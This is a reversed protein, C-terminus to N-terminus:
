RRDAHGDLEAEIWAAIADWDDARLHAAPAHGMLPRLRRDAIFHIRRSPPHQEAASQLNHPIDDVFFVPLETRAALARIAPGKLGTNPIVPYPMGHRALNAARAAAALAPVNTLIVVDAVRSLRQLADAAGPVPDLGAHAAAYFEKLLATVTDHAVADGARTRVNGHLAYSRLDLWMERDNLFRELGAVFQLLVEDADSVLLPRSRWEPLAAIAALTAEHEAM